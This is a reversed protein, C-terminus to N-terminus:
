NVKQVEGLIGRHDSLGQAMRIKEVAYHRSTFFGDIVYKWKIKPRVGSDLTTEVDEPINDKYRKALSDFISHSYGRPSNFDGTLVIDPARDLIAALKAFDKIQEDSVKAGKVYTFQTTGFNFRASGVELQAQLLLNTTYLEGNLVLTNSAEKDRHYYDERVGFLPHRSGIALGWNEAEEERDTLSMRCMRSFVIQGGLANGIKELSGEFVEQLLVVDPKEKDICKLIDEFLGYKRGIHCTNLQFVKIETTELYSM